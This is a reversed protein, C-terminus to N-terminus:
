LHFGQSHRYGKQFERLQKRDELDIEFLDSIDRIVKEDLEQYTEKGPQALKFRVGQAQLLSFLNFGFHTVSEFYASRGNAVISNVVAKRKLEIPLNFRLAIYLRDNWFCQHNDFGYTFVKLALDRAKRTNYEGKKDLELLRQIDSDSM